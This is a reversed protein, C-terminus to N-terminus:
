NYQTIIKKFYMDYVGGSLRKQTILFRLNDKSVFFDADSDTYFSKDIENVFFEMSVKTLGSEYIIEIRDGKKLNFKNSKNVTLQNNGIQSNYGVKCSTKANELVILDYKSKINDYSDSLESIINNRDLLQKEIRLNFYLTVSSLIILIAIIAPTIIKFILKKNINQITQKM